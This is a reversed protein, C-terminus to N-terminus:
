EIVRISKKKVSSVQFVGLAGNSLNTLPNAPPPSFMGGDNGLVSALESYFLYVKRSISFVRITASDGLAYNFPFELGSIKGALFIDDSIFVDAENRLLEDNAFFEFYYYDKTEQPEFGYFLVNYLLNDEIDDQGPDPDKRVSLSDLEFNPLMPETASYTIGNLTVDLTYTNNIIGTFAPQPFYYGSSDPNSTDYEVFDYVNGIDDLVLISAGSIGPIKGQYYFDVNSTIRVYNLDPDDTVLAEIVIKQDTQEPDLQIVEDCSLTVIMMILTYIKRM